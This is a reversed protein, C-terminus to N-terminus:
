AKAAKTKDSLIKEIARIVAMCASEKAEPEIGNFLAPTNQVLLQAIHSELYAVRGNTENLHLRASLIQDKNEASQALKHAELLLMKCIPAAIATPIICIDPARWNDLNDVGITIRQGQSIKGEAAIYRPVAAIFAGIMGQQDIHIPIKGKLPNDIGNRLVTDALQEIAHTNSIASTIEPGQLDREILSEIYRSLNGRHKLEAKAKAKEVLKSPLSLNQKKLNDQNTEQSLPTPMPNTIPSQQRMELSLKPANMAQSQHM